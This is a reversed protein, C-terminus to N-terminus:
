ELESLRFRRVAVIGHEVSKPSLFYNEDNSGRFFKRVWVKGSPQDLKTWYTTHFFIGKNHEVLNKYINTLLDGNPLSWYDYGGGRNNLKNFPNRCCWKGM